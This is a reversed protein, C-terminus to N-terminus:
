IRMPTRVVCFIDANGPVRTRQRPRATRAGFDPRGFQGSIRFFRYQYLLNV